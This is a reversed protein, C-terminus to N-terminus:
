RDTLMPPDDLNKCTYLVSDGLKDLYQPMWEDLPSYFGILHDLLRWRLPISQAASVRLHRVVQVGCNGSCPTVQIADRRELLCIAVDCSFGDDADVHVCIVGYDWPDRPKHDLPNM